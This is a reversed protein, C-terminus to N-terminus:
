ATGHLERYKNNHDVCVDLCNKQCIVDAHTDHDGAWRARDERIKEIPDNVKGIPDGQERLYIICPFHYRGAVAMDDLVLGCRTSDGEQLSRVHRDEKINKLRYALIPYKSDIPVAEVLLRANEQATSIVRVDAVGLGKAFEIIGRLEGMNKENVVIGVSTYVHKSIMSINEVVKEWEDKKGAMIAGTSSCCADLSISFDTVGAWILEQYLLSNASGNTSIAINKGGREKTFAVLEKLGNWCTPEGGSFRVSELSQSCWKEVIEKAQDLSMTRNIDARLGRCYGCKFNCAGTLILECRKLPSFQSVNKVREDSLTYFGIEKLDM